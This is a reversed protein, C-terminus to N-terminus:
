RTMGKIVGSGIRLWELITYVVCTSIMKSPYSFKCLGKIKKKIKKKINLIYGCIRKM